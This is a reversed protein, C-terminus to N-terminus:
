VEIRIFRIRRPHIRIRSRLQQRSVLFEVPFVPFMAAPFCRDMEPLESRRAPHM